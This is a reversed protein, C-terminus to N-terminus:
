TKKTWVNCWGNTNVAKGPFINCPAWPTSQTGKFYLCNHCFQREDQRDSRTADHVYKLSQAVPDDETVRPMEAARLKLPLFGGAVFGAAGGV